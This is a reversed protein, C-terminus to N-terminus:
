SEVPCTALFRDVLSVNAYDGGRQGRHSTGMQSLLTKLGPIRTEGFCVLGHVPESVETECAPKTADSGQSATANM